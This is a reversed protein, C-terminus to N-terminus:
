RGQHVIGRCDDNPQREEVGSEGSRNRCDQAIEDDDAITKEDLTDYFEREKKKKKQARSWSFRIYVHMGACALSSFVHSFLFCNEESCGFFRTWSAIGRGM